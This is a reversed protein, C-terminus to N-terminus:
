TTAVQNEVVATLVPSAGRQAVARVAVDIPDGGPDPEVPFEQYALSPLTFTLSNAAGHSFTFEADTVALDSDQTTGSTSGYHFTNYADLDEFILTFGLTVERQGAVVDYPVIDDTQQTSINNNITLEFSSVTAVSSGDLEVSADNFTYPLGSAATPFSAPQSALRTAARGVISTTCTLPSGADASITLENILCDTYKEFLTGDIERYFTMYPLTNAPTLTHTYDTTGTVAAGGLAGYLATHMLSDRVYFEPAGGAGVSQVYSVGIDRNSDTESLQAISREPAANGGSFPTVRSGAGLAAASGKATQKQFALLARNGRLGAM